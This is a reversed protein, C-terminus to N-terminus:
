WGYYESYPNVRVVVSCPDFGDEWEQWEEDSMTPSDHTSCYPETIWDFRIGINLWKNFLWDKM